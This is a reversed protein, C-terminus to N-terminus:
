NRVKKRLSKSELRVQLKTPSMTQRVYVSNSVPIQFGTHMHKQEQLDTVATNNNRVQKPSGRPTATLQSLAYLDSPRFTRNGINDNTNKMSMIRRAASHGQPRSM